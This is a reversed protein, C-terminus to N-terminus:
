ESNTTKRFMRAPRQQWPTRNGLDLNQLITGKKPSEIIDVITVGHIIATGWMRSATPRSMNAPPFKFIKDHFGVEQYSYPINQDAHFSPISAADLVVPIRVLAQFLGESILHTTCCKTTGSPM